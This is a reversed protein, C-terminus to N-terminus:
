QGESLNLMSYLNASKTQGIGDSFQLWGRGAGDNDNVLMSFGLERDKIKTVGPLIESWPIRARYVYKGDQKEVSCECNDVLVNKELQTSIEAQMAKEASSLSEFRFLQVGDPTKSLGFETFSGGSSLKRDEATSIAFQIGDGSWMDAGSKDQFFVNDTVVALLYLNEEDWKLKGLVSCDEKGSWDDKYKVDMKRDAAYFDGGQWVTYNLKGSIPPKKDAFGATLGTCRVAVTTKYGYDLEVDANFNFTRQVYSQPVNLKVTVTEKPKVNEFYRTEVRGGYATFDATVKGSFTNQSATNTISIHAETQSSTANVREIKGVLEMPKTRVVHVRTIFILDDGDYMKIRLTNEDATDEATAVTIEASGCDMGDNRVIEINDRAEADIKLNRGQADRITFVARDSPAAFARANDITVAPACEEFAAFNGVIYMPEFTTTFSYRGDKSRLDGTKNSYMDYVEVENTGLNLGVNDYSNDSWLVIVDKGDSSRTFKYVSTKDKVIKGSVAADGLLKNYGAMALYSLKAAYPGTTESKDYLLGWHSEGTRLDNDLGPNVFNFQYINDAVNDGQIMAMLQTLYSAQALESAWLAGSRVGLETWSIEIEPHGADDLKKRLKAARERYVDNRLRDKGTDELNTDWDYPHVSVADCYDLIGAEICADIFADHLTATSCATVKIDPKATKVQKYIAKTLETYQQPTAYDKNFGGYVNPENWVEYYELKDGYTKVFWGAYDAIAKIEEDTVPIHTEGGYSPHGMAVAMNQTMDLERTLDFAPKFVYETYPAKASNKNWMSYERIGSFGADSAMKYLETMDPERNNFQFQIQTRMMSNPKESAKRKNAVAFHIDEGAVSGSIREGNYEGSYNLTTRIFYKSCEDANHLQIKLEGNKQPAIVTKDIIGDELLRKDYSLIEYKGDVTLETSQTLNKLTATLIKEEDYDFTNGLSGTSYEAIVPKQPFSEKVEVWEIYVPGKSGGYSSTWCAILLDAGANDNKFYCEDFYFTHEKFQNDGLMTVKEAAVRNARSTTHDITFYAGAYEDFYRVTVAVSKPPDSPKFLSDACNLQVYNAGGGSRLQVVKTKEKEVELLSGELYGVSMNQNGSGDWAYRAYLEQKDAYAVGGVALIVSLLVSIYRRIKMDGDGKGTEPM